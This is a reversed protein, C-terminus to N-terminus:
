RPTSSPRRRVSCTSAVSSGATNGSVTSNLTVDRDVSTGGVCNGKVELTDGAKAADVAQQLSSFSKHNRTDSIACAPQSDAAASAILGALTAISGLTLVALGLVTRKGRFKM